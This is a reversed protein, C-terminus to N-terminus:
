LYSIKKVKCLVYCLLAAYILFHTLSQVMIIFDYVKHEVM